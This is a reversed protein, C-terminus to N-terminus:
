LGHKPYEAECAIVYADFDALMFDNSPDTIVEGVYEVFQADTIWNCANLVNKKATTIRSM